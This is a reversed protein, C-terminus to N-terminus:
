SHHEHITSYCFKLTLTQKWLIGNSVWAVVLISKFSALVFISCKFYYKKFSDMPIYEECVREQINESGLLYSVSYLMLTHDVRSNRPVYNVKKLTLPFAYHILRREWYQECHKSMKKTDCEFICGEHYGMRLVMSRIPSQGHKTVYCTTLAIIDNSLVVNGPQSSPGKRRTNM